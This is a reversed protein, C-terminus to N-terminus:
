QAASTGAHVGEGRPGPDLATCRAPSLNRESRNRLVRGFQGGGRREDWMM